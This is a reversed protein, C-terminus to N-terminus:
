VREMIQKHLSSNDVVDEYPMDDDAGWVFNLGLTEAHNVILSILADIDRGEEDVSIGTFFLAIRVPAPADDPINDRWNDFTEPEPPEMEEEEEFPDDLDEPAPDQPKLPPSVPEKDKYSDIFHDAVLM